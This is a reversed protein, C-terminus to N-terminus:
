ARGPRVPRLHGAGRGAATADSTAAAAVRHTDTERGRWALEYVEAISATGAVGPNGTAASIELREAFCARAADFRGAVVEAFAGYNLAQPLATLAGQDRALQVWRDALAHEAQDDFLDAAAVCGLGLLRLGQAPSLDGASLMAIARRLLPASARYGAAARAAFGDLLLDTASVQSGSAAQTARAAAAIELM